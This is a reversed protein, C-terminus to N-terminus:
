RPLAELMRGVLRVRDGSRWSADAPQEIFGYTGDDYRVTVVQVTRPPDRRNERYEKRQQKGGFVPVAGTDDRLDSAVNAAASANAGGAPRSRADAPLAKQEVRVVTGCKECPGKVPERAYERLQAGSPIRIGTQALAEAAVLVVALTLVTATSCYRLRLM